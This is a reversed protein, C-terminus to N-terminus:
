ICFTKDKENDFCKMTVHKTVSIKIFSIFAQFKFVIPRVSLKLYQKKRVPIDAGSDKFQLPVLGVNLTKWFDFSINVLIMWECINKLIPTRLYKEINM